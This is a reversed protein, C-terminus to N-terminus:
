YGNDSEDREKVSTYKKDTLIITYTELGSKQFPFTAITRKSSIDFHHSSSGMDDAFSRNTYTFSYFYFRSYLNEDNIL